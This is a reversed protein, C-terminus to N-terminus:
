LMAQPRHDILRRCTIQTAASSPTAACALRGLAPPNEFARTSAPLFTVPLRGLGGSMELGLPAVLTGVTLLSALLGVLTLENGGRGESRMGWGLGM